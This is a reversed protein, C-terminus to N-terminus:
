EAVAVEAVTDIADHDPLIEEVDRVQKFMYGGFGFLAGILGM